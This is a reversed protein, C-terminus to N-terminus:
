IRVSFEGDKTFVDEDMDDRESGIESSDGELYSVADSTVSAHESIPETDFGDLSQSDLGTIGSDKEDSLVVISSNSNSEVCKNQDSHELLGSQLGASGTPQVDMVNANNLLSDIAM